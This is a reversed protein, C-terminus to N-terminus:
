LDAQSIVIQTAPVNAFAPRYVTVSGSNLAFDGDVEVGVTGSESSGTGAAFATEGNPGVAHTSNLIEAWGDSDPPVYRSISGGISRVQVAAMYNKQVTSIATEYNTTVAMAKSTEVYSNYSSLAISSVIGLIGFTIMLEILTFGMEKSPTKKLAFTKM